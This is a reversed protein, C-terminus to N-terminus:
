DDIKTVTDPLVVKQLDPCMYFTGQPLIEMDCFFVCEQLADSGYFLNEEVKTCTAPIWVGNLTTNSFANYEIEIVSEDVVLVGSIDECDEFRYGGDIENLEVYGNAVVEDWTFFMEGAVYLGPMKWGCDACLSDAYANEARPLVEGKIEEGCVTCATDGSYGESVCGSENM